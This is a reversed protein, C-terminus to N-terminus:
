LLECYKNSKLVPIDRVITVGHGSAPTATISMKDGAIIGLDAINMRVKVIEAEELLIDNNNSQIWSYGIRSDGPLLREHFRLTCIEYTIMSTDIGSGGGTTEFCLEMFLIRLDQTDVKAIITDALSLSNSTEELASHVVSESKQTTSFGAGLVVYSFVAAVVIFAILVIGAELGTFAESNRLVIRVTFSNIPIINFIVIESQVDLGASNYM